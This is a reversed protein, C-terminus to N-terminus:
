SAMIKFWNRKSDRRILLFRRLSEEKRQTRYKVPTLRRARAQSLSFQIGLEAM